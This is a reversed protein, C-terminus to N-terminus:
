RWRRYRTILVLIRECIEEDFLGEQSKEKAYDNAEYITMRSGKSFLTAIFSPIAKEDAGSIELIRKLDYKFEEERRVNLM